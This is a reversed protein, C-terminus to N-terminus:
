LLLQSKFMISKCCNLVDACNNSINVHCAIFMVEDGPIIDYINKILKYCTPRKIRDINNITIWKYM